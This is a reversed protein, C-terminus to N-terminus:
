FRGVVSFGMLDAGPATAAFELERVREGQQAQEANQRDLFFLAVGAGAAALGVGAVTPALWDLTNVRSNKKDLEDLRKESLGDPCQNGDLNCTSELDDLDRKRVIALVGATALGAGGVGMLVYPVVGYKKGSEGAVGTDRPHSTPLTPSKDPAPELSITVTRTEEEGVELTESYDLYGPASAELSHPGPDLPVEVGVSSEGLQVGDLAISAAEAGEGRQIVVKPIRARLDNVSAEVEQKFSVGDGVSDADELALEYGGLAAVLKGLKEECLAIHYRVQPTMKFQGVERFMKLAGAWNKAKELEIGRQFAARAESLEEATQAFAMGESGLGVMLSLLLLVVRHRWRASASPLLSVPPNYVLVLAGTSHLVPSMRSMRSFGTRGSARIVPLRCGEM